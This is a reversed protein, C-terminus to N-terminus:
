WDAIWTMFFKLHILGRKLPWNDLFAVKEKNWRHGRIVPKVINLWEYNFFTGSQRHFIKPRNKKAYYFTIPIYGCPEHKGRTQNLPYIPFDFSKFKEAPDTKPKDDKESPKDGGLLLDIDDSISDIDDERPTHPVDDDGHPEPLYM